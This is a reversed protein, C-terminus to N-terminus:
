FQQSRLTAVRVHVAEATCMEKDTHIQIHTHTHRDTGADKCLPALLYAGDLNRLHRIIFEHCRRMFIWRMYWQMCVLVCACVGIVACNMVSLRLTLSVHLKSCDPTSHIHQHALRVAHASKGRLAPGILQSVTQEGLSAPADPASQVDIDSYNVTALIKNRAASFSKKWRCKRPIRRWKQGRHVRVYCVFACWACVRPQSVRSESHM